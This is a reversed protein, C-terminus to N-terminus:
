LLEKGKSKAKEDKWQEIGKKLYEVWEPLTSWSSFFLNELIPPNFGRECLLKALILLDLRGQGDHTPHAWELAAFLYAIVTLSEDLLQKIEDESKAKALKRDIEEIKQYYQDFLKKVIEQLKEPSYCDYFINFTLQEPVLCPPVKCKEFRTFKEVKLDKCIGNLFGEIEIFKKDRLQECRIGEKVIKELKGKEEKFKDMSFLASFQIKRQPSLNEFENLGRYVVALRNKIDQYHKIADDITKGKSLTPLCLIPEKRFLGTKDSTMQTNNAKGKFHACVVNHLKLYFDVTLKETLREGVFIFGNKLSNFYGEEVLGTHLGKDYVMPGLHHYEKEVFSKWFNDGLGFFVKQAQEKTPIVTKLESKQNPKFGIQM